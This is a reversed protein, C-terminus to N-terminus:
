LILSWRQEVYSVDFSWNSQAEWQSVLAKDSLPLWCTRSSRIYARPAKDPASKWDVYTEISQANLFTEATFSEDNIIDSRSKKNEDRMDIIKSQKAGAERPPHPHPCGHPSPKYQIPSLPTPPPDSLTHSRQSGRKPRNMDRIGSANILLPLSKLHLIISDLQILLWLFLIYLERERKTCTWRM